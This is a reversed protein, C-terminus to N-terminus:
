YSMTYIQGTNSDDFYLLKSTPDLLMGIGPFVSTGPLPGEPFYANYTTDLTGVTGNGAITDVVGAPTVRRIYRGGDGVYLTGDTDVVMSMTSKFKATALPGDVHGSRTSSSLTSVTWTWQSASTCGDCKTPTIKRLEYNDFVYIVDNSDIAMTRVSDFGASGSVGVVSGTGDVSTYGTEGECMGAGDPCIKGALMTVKGSADIARISADSSVIVDGASDVVLGSPSYDFLAGSGTGTSDSDSQCDYVTNGVLTTVTGAVPASATGTNSIKRVSCEDGTEYLNGAADFAIYSPAWFYASAAAVNDVVKLGNGNGAYATSQLTKSDIKIIRNSGSDALYLNGSADWTMGAPTCYHSDTPGDLTLNSAPVNTGYCNNSGSLRGSYVSFDGAIVRLTQVQSGGAGQADTLTLTYNTTAPVTVTQGVGSALTYSSGDSGTVTATYNPSGGLLNSSNLVATLTVTGGVSTSAAPTALFSYIGGLAGAVTVTVPGASVSNNSSDTAVLTYQATAPYAAATPNVVLSDTGTVTTSSTTVKSNAGTITANLTLSSVNNSSTTWSLTTGTGGANITSAAGSFSNISLVDVTATATSTATKGVNNKAVATLTYTTTASPTVAQIGTASVTNIGQDISITNAGSVTWNLISSGGSAISTPSAYFNITPAVPQPDVTVTATATTSAGDSNTATLTYTTTAAPTIMVSNGTVSGVNNDISYSTAGSVVWTLTTSDGITIESTSPSFSTIQPGVAVKVTATIVAGASNTATLTYTTTATPKVTVSGTSGSLTGVGNDIAVSTAGSVSWALTTSGGYAISTSAATFSSIVASAAKSGSGGCASLLATIALVLFMAAYGSLRLLKRCSSVKDTKAKMGMIM